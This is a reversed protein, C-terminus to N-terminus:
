IGKKYKQHKIVFDSLEPLYLNYHIKSQAPHLTERIIRPFLDDCCNYSNSEVPVYKYNDYTGINLSSINKQSLAKLIITFDSNGKYLIEKIENVLERISKGNITDSKVSLVMLELGKGTEEALQFESSIHIEQKTIEKTKVEIDVEDNVFDHGEDYPGRWSKLIDNYLLISAAEDLRKKLIFLEGFLGKIIEQPLLESKKDEFFDAWKHFTNIFIRECEKIDSVLFVHQYLSVILDDFLDYFLSNTLELVVYGENQLVHLTLNQIVTTKYQVTHDRPLELLLCRNGSSYLGINLEPVSEVSIRIFEIGAESDHHIHDWLQKLNVM